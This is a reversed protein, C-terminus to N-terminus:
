ELSQLLNDLSFPNLRRPQPPPDSEPRPSPALPDLDVGPLDSSRAAARSAEDAARRRAEEAARRSAREAEAQSAREAEAQSAREAEARAAEEGAQRAAEADQLAREEAERRARDEDLRQQEARRLAEEELRRRELAARERETELAAYYRVERRLRQKELLAAQMAEVRAQEIELARQMLFHALPESDFKREASGLPGEIGFRLIPESGVLAEEGAEYAISGTASLRKRNLDIALDAELTAAEGEMKVPPARLVGGAVTFAASVNRTEFSGDTAIAPVFEATKAADIDKGIADARSIYRALADPNVGAIAFDDLAATGSGSLGAVLGGISKGSATLAASLDITGRLRGDGIATELDAGTLRVQGTFLGTGGNNKLEFLGAMDGGFLRGTLDAVRLGEGDLTLSLGAESATALPGAALTAAEIRLGASFPSAPAPRFPAEPWAEAGSQLSEEGVVMAALQELDLVDVTLHGTLHPRGERMEVDLGGAVAGEDITGTLDTLALRGGAYGADAELAVPLGMGMGPLSAGVTMLWPEIDAAELRLRGNASPGDNGLGTTGSFGVSLGDGGIEVTTELGGASSGELSVVTHGAGVVDLPLVPLGYFALIRGADGNQGQLTLSVEADALADPRGSGSLTLDFTTGGATGQASAAIGTSQDDNAAATAVVDIRTDEFLGEHAAARAQLGRVFPNDPFRSAVAAILPALDVAVISADINGGPTAPFDKLTGTASITAGALGGISLRDIELLRDRLRVATSVTEATLGAVSVPGAEVDLDIDHDAFRTAGEDSV